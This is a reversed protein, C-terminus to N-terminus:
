QGSKDKDKEKPKPLEKLEEAPKTMTPPMVGTTQYINGGHADGATIPNRYDCDCKGGVHHCGLALGLLGAGCLLLYLRRM